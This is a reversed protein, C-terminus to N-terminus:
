RLGRHYWSKEWNEKRHNYLIIFNKEGKAIKKQKVRVKGAFRLFLMRFFIPATIFGQAM